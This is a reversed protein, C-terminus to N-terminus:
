ARLWGEALGDRSAVLVEHPACGLAASFATRVLAPQNNRESLHAAVITHLGAHSLQTLAHAAQANSLHGHVGAVRRKLFPPYASAALLAPDHNSELM